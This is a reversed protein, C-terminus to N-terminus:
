SIQPRYTRIERVKPLDGEAVSLRILHSGNTLGAALVYRYETFERGDTIMEPAGSCINSVSWHIAFPTQTPRHKLEFARQVMWDQADISLNGSRATFRRTSDGTGEDGSLSGSVGFEFQSQDPSIKTLTATWDQVIHNHILTIRRLAPWDSVSETATTRSVLYCGDTADAPSGDISVFPRASLPLNSILEVRSGTIHFELPGSAALQFDVHVAAVNTEHQGNWNKVLNDFYQNFFYGILFKGQKNPHIPDVLFDQPPQDM